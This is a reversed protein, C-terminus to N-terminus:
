GKNHLLNAVKGATWLGGGPAPRGSDNWLEATQEPLIRNTQYETAERTLADVYAQGALHLLHQLDLQIGYREQLAEVAGEPSHDGLLETAVPGLEPLGGDRRPMRLEINKLRQQVLPVVARTEKTSLHPFCANFRQIAAVVVTATEMKQWVEHAPTWEGGFRIMPDKAKDESM